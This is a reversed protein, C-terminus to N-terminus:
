PSLTRLFDELQADIVDFPDEGNERMELMGILDGAALFIIMKDQELWARRRQLLAQPAPAQRSVLLGFKRKAQAWLYQQISEVQRPGIPGRYNKYEAVVFRTVYEARVLSWPPSATRIPFVADMIDLNDDSRVQQDPPGLDPKFIETLIETGWQEFKRWDGEGPSITKLSEEFRVSLAPLPMSSAAIAMMQLSQLAASSKRAAAIIDPYQALLHRVHDGTWADLGEQEAISQRASASLEGSLVLLGKTKPAQLQYRAIDGVFQHVISRPIPQRYHKVEVILRDGGPLVAEFDPGVHQGPRPQGLIQFGSRALLAGVILEFEQYSLDAFNFEQSDDARDRM